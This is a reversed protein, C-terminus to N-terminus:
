VGREWGGYDAYLLAGLTQTGARHLAKSVPSRHQCLLFIVEGDGGESNHKRATCPTITYQTTPEASVCSPCSWLLLKSWSKVTNGKASFDDAPEWRLWTVADGERQTVKCAAICPPCISVILQLWHKPCRLSLSHTVAKCTCSIACCSAFMSWLVSDQAGLPLSWLNAARATLLFQLEWLLALILLLQSGLTYRYIM